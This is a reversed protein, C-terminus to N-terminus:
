ISMTLSCALAGRFIFHESFKAQIDCVLLVTKNPDLRKVHASMIPSILIFLYNAPTTRKTTSKKVVVVQGKGRLHPETTWGGNGGLEDRWEKRSCM